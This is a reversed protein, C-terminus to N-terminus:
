MTFRLIMVYKRSSYQPTHFSFLIIPLKYGMYNYDIM